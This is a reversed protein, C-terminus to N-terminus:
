AKTPARSRARAAAERHEIVVQLSKRLTPSNPAIELGNNVDSMAPDYLKLGVFVASRAAPALKM